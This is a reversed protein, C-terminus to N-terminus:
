KDFKIYKGPQYLIDLKIKKMVEAAVIPAVFSAILGLTVHIVSASIGFKLLVSRVGAAFITHMLFVPMTFEALSTSKEEAVAFLGMVTGCALLGMFFPSSSWDIISFVLFLGPLIYTLPKLKEALVPFNFMCAVMGIVFWIQNAAIIEIAYCDVVKSILKLLTAVFLTIYCSKRDSFTKTIVFIFFISFLYWYPSIPHVFLDYVLGHVQLNVEGSFSKKLMWTIFSFTFYPVGLVVLKKVVHRKWAAFSNVVSYKQFVYGSCIFFLPVHFYYITRNFWHYFAGSNLIGSSCMSQFFHGLAVLVCAFIKIRDIWNERSRMKVCARSERYSMGTADYFLLNSRLM